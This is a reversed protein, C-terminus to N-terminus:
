SEIGAPDPRALRAGSETVRWRNASDTEPNIREVYGLDAAQGLAQGYAIPRSSLQRSKATGDTGETMRYLAHLATLPHVSEFSSGDASEGSNTKVDVPDGTYTQQCSRCRYTDCTPRTVISTHGEPCRFRWPDSM